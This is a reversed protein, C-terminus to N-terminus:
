QRVTHEVNSQVFQSVVLLEDSGGTIHQVNSQVFQSVVLLKDSGWHHTSCVSLMGDYFGLRSVTSDQTGVAGPELKAWSM